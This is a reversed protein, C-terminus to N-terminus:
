KLRALQQRSNYLRIVLVIKLSASRTRSPLIQPVRWCIPIAHFRNIRATLPETKWFVILRQLLKTGAVTWTSLRLNVKSLRVAKQTQTLSATTDTRTELLCVAVVSRSPKRDRRPGNLFVSKVFDIVTEQRRVALGTPDIDHNM